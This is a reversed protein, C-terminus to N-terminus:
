LFHSDWKFASNPTIATAASQSTQRTGPLSWKCVYDFGGSDKVWEQTELGPESNHSNEFLLETATLLPEYFRQAFHLLRSVRHM